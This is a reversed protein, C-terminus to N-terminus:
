SKKKSNDQDQAISVNSLETCDITESSFLNFNGLIALSFLVRFKNKM